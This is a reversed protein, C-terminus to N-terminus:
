VALHKAVLRNNLPRIFPSMFLAHNKHQAYIQIGAHLTGIAAAALYVNRDEENRAAKILLGSIFYANGLVLLTTKLM